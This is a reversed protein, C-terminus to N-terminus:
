SIPLYSALLLIVEPSNVNTICRPIFKCSFVPGSHWALHVMEYGFLIIDVRIPYM